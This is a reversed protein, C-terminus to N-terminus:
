IQKTELSDKKNSKMFHYTMISGFPGTIIAILAVVIELQFENNSLMIKLAVALTLLVSFIFSAGLMLTLIPRTCDRLNQVTDRSQEKKDDM